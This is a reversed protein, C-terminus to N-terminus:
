GSGLITAEFMKFFYRWRLSFRIQDIFQNSTPIDMKGIASREKIIKDSLVVNNFADDTTGEAVVYTPRSDSFTTSISDAVDPMTAQKMEFGSDNQSTAPLLAQSAVVTDRM